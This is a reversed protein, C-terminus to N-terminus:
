VIKKGNMKNRGRSYNCMGLKNGKNLSYLIQDKSLKLEKAMEDLNKINKDSESLNNWYNSVILTQKDSQEFKNIFDCYGLERGKKLYRRITGETLNFLISLQNISTKNNNLYDCM